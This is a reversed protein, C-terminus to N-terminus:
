LPKTVESPRDIGALVFRKDILGWPLLNLVDQSGVDVTLAGAVM